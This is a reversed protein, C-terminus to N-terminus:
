HRLFRLLLRPLFGLDDFRSSGRNQSESKGGMFPCLLLNWHFRLSDGEPVDM